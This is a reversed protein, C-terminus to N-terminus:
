RKERNLFNWCEAYRPHELLKEAYQAVYAHFQESLHRATGDGSLEDLMAGDATADRYNLIAATVGNRNGESWWLIPLADKVDDYACKALMLAPLESHIMRFTSRCEGKVNWREALLLLSGRVGENLHAASSIGQGVGEDIADLANLTPRGVEDRIVRWCKGIVSVHSKDNAEQNFVIKRTNEMLETAWEFDGMERREEGRMADLIRNILTAQCCFQAGMKRATQGLESRVMKGCLTDIYRRTMDDWLVCASKCNRIFSAGSFGSLIQDSVSDLYAVHAQIALELLAIDYENLPPVATSETGSGKLKVSLHKEYVKEMFLCLDGITCNQGTTGLRYKGDSSPLIWFDSSGFAAVKSLTKVADRTQMQLADVKMQMERLDVESDLVFDGSIRTDEVREILQKARQRLEETAGFAELCPIGDRLLIKDRTIQPHIASLKKVIALRQAFDDCLYDDREIGLFSSSVLKEYESTASAYDSRGLAVIIKQSVEKNSADYHKRVSAKIMYFLFVLSGLVLFVGFVVLIKKRRERWLREEEQAKKKEREKKLREAKAEQAKRRREAEEARQRRLREEEEAKKKELYGERKNKCTKIRQNYSGIADNLRSVEPCVDDLSVTGETGWENKIDQLKHQLAELLKEAEKLSTEYSPQEIRKELQLISADVAAKANELDKIANDLNDRYQELNLDIWEAFTAADSGLALDGVGFGYVFEQNGEKDPYIKLLETRVTKQIEESSLRDGRKERLVAQRLVKDWLMDRTLNLRDRDGAVKVDPDNKTCRAYRAADGPQLQSDGDPNALNAGDELYRRCAHAFEVSAADCKKAQGLRHMVAQCPYKLYETRERLCRLYADKIAVLDPNDTAVMGSVVLLFGFIGSSQIDGPSSIDPPDKGGGVENVASVAMIPINHERILNCLEAAAGGCLEGLFMAPGGAREISGAQLHSQTLLIISKERLKQNQRLSIYMNSVVSEFQRRKVKAIKKEDGSSEGALREDPLAVNVMFCVVKAKEIAKKLTDVASQSRSAGTGPPVFFDDPANNSGAADRGGADGVKFAKKFDEGAIDMSSLTFIRRWGTQVEWKLPVFTGQDTSEPWKGERLRNFASEVVSRTNADCTSMRFGLPSVDKGVVQNTFKKGLVTLFVTKGCAPMGVVVVDPSSGVDKM